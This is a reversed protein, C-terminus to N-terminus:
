ARGPSTYVAEARKVATQKVVHQADELLAYATTVRRAMNALYERVENPLVATAYRDPHYTMALRHYAKRVDEFPADIPLGLIQYPDDADKIRQGLVSANPVNVLKVNKLSSKAFWSREGGYPEFELFQGEGNLLDYLTRAASMIFRGKLTRGDDLTVEAPVVTLQLGSDTKNRDFM